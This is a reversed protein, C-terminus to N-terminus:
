DVVGTAVGKRPRGRKKPPKAAPTPVTKPYQRRLQGLGLRKALTSRAESYSQATMPYDPPLGWKSRYAEATLGRLTLHRRLTKYPKGDEFSILADHSISKKIQAPALKQVAAGSAESAQNLGTLATYLTTILAPVEALPVRNNSVYAAVLETTIETYDITAAEPAEVIDNVHWRSNLRRYRRGM